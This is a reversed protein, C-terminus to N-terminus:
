AGARQIRLRPRDGRGPRRTHQGRGAARFARLSVTAAAAGSWSLQGAESTVLGAGDVSARGFPGSLARRRRGPLPGARRLVGRRRSASSAARARDARRQGRRHLGSSGSRARAAVEVRHVLRYGLCARVGVLPLIFPGDGRRGLGGGRRGPGLEAGLRRALSPTVAQGGARPPTAAQVHPLAESGIVFLRDNKYRLQGPRGPGCAPTCRASAVVRIGRHLVNPSSSRVRRPGPAPALYISTPRLFGRAHRLAAAADGGRGPRFARPRLDPEARAHGRGVVRALRSGGGKRARGLGARGGGTSALRDVTTAFACAAPRRPRSIRDPGPLRGCRRARRQM